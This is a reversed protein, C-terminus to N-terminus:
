ECIDSWIDNWIDQFLVRLDIGVAYYGVVIAVGEVDELNRRHVIMKDAHYNSWFITYHVIDDVLSHLIISVSDNYKVTFYFTWSLKSKDTALRYIISGNSHKANTAQLKGTKTEILTEFRTFFNNAFDTNCIKNGLIDYCTAM